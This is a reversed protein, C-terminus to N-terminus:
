RTPFRSSRSRTPPDTLSEEYGTYATTFVIEGRATGSARGRGELVHGGELAVYAETM